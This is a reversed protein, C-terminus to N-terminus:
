LLLVINSQHYCFYSLLNSFYRLHCITFQHLLVNVKMNSINIIISSNSKQINICEVGKSKYWKSYGFSVELKSITIWGWLFHHRQTHSYSCFFAFGSKYKRVTFGTKTAEASKIQDHSHCICKLLVNRRTIFTIAYIM